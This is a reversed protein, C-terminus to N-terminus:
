PQRRAEAIARSILRSVRGSRAAAGARLQAETTMGRELAQSVALDIQEPGTGGEAADLITRAADTVRVGELVVVEQPRVPRTATHLRVGPAPRRYRMSRPVTLHIRNSIVDSLDHLSLATEHSVVASDKGAALWAAAVDERPSSPYARLRYLGRRVRIFRGGKAHHSLLAPGYGCARAQETTFYGQQESAVDFLCREDPSSMEDHM